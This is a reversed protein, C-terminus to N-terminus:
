VPAPKEPTGFHRAFREADITASTIIVKLDPRRPLLQKLYGLLFDINLSREHAEDIIITDYNKLLPDTQTEALLIGDTMLKVSAGRQLTDAFRVKFGVTVGLPTGLEQAIRKATSSAAIRRPQTHGIMGSQGRGLELCIKPLQTTKGSGTEGSVIVVQNNMLAEAIEQRRGSVPLDEPYTIPPLPNRFAKEAAKAAQEEPTLRPGRPGRPAGDPRPGRAQQQQAARPQQDRAGEPRAARPPRAANDNDTRETRPGRAPQAGQPRASPQPSGAARAGGQGPNAARGRADAPPRPGRQRQDPKKAPTAAPTAPTTNSTADPTTNKNSAESM